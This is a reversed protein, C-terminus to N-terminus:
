LPLDSQINKLGIQLSDLQRQRELYPLDGLEKVKSYFQPLNGDVSNLISQFIPGLSYYTNVPVLYANNLEFNEDGAKILNIGASNGNYLDMKLNHFVSDKKQSLSKPDSNSHYIESLHSSANLIKEVMIDEEDQMKLAQVIQDDRDISKLWQLVGFREVSSAFGENFRSDGPVYLKQHALEHIILRALHISDLKM